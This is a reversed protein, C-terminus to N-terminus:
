RGGRIANKIYELANQLYRPLVPIDKDEVLLKYLISSAFESKTDSLKKQWEYGRNSNNNYDCPTGLIENYIQPKLEKLVDNVINNEKNQAIFAEEFSTRYLSDYRDQFFISINGRNIPWTINEIDKTGWFYAITKNTTERGALSNVPTFASKEANSRKIDLDTVIAVPIGLARLLNEYVYAHAGDIKV